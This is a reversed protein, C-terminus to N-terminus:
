VGCLWLLRLFWVHANLRRLISNLLRSCSRGKAAIGLVVLSDVIVAFRMGINGSSRALGRLARLELENIHAGPREWPFKM